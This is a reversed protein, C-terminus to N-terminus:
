EESKLKQGIGVEKVRSWGCPDAKEQLELTMSERGCPMQLHQKRQVLPEKGSVEMSAKSM